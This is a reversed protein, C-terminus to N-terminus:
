VERVIESTFGLAASGKEREVEKPPSKSAAPMAISRGIM